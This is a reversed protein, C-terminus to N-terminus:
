GVSQTTLGIEGTGLINSPSYDANKNLHIRYMRMIVNIFEHVQRPSTAETPHLTAPDDDLTYLFAVDGHPQAIGGFSGRAAGYSPMVVPSLTPITADRLHNGLPRVRTLEQSRGRLTWLWSKSRKQLLYILM